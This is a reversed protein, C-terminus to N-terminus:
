EAYYNRLNEYAQCFREYSQNYIDRNQTNPTYTREIPVIRQIDLDKPSVGTGIGALLASGLVAGDRGRPVLVHKGTIDAHIQCWLDSKSGGGTTYWELIELESAKEVLEMNRRVAFACGELLSRIIDAKSTSTSLGVLIGRVEPANQVGALYPLFLLGSSGPKAEAAKVESLLTYPDSKIMEAANAETEGLTKKFWRLAAGTTGVYAQLLWRNPLVHHYLNCISCSKPEALCVGPNTAHGIDLFAQGPNVINLTLVSMATDHGGAIVPTGEALTTEQAAERSVSGLIEMSQKMEPLKEMPIDLKACLEQSWNGTHKDVLLTLESMSLDMAFTGTLKYNIYSNAQLFVYTENFARPEHTQFWKIKPALYNPTCTNGCIHIFEDDTIQQQIWESEAIARSDAWILAPYLVDGQKNLALLTPVHSDVGIAAIQQAVIGSQKIVTQIGAKIVSWWECPDQEAYGQQPHRTNYGDRSLAIREGVFSFLGVKGGTTGVDIGLLFREM